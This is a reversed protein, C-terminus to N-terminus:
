RKLLEMTWLDSEDRAVTFYFRQGDTAFERRLSRRSPDDFRVLLRPTGGTVPVSWISSHRDRDYAKYYITRSDRSWVPYAPEPQGDAARADVLVREGTGDPAIVRLQGQVCYAILRGDPSWKPDSSGNRTLQRPM